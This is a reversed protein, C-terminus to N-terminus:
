KAYLGDDTAEKRAKAIDAQMRDRTAQKWIEKVTEWGREGYVNNDTIEKKWKGANKPFDEIFKQEKTRADKAEKPDDDLGLIGIVNEMSPITPDEIRDADEAWSMGAYKDGFAKAALEDTLGPAEYDSIVSDPVWAGGDIAKELLEKATAM